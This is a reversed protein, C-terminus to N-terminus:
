YACPKYAAQPQAICTECRPPAFDLFASKRMLWVCPDSAHSHQYFVRTFSALNVEENKGEASRVRQSGDGRRERTGKKERRQEWRVTSVKIPHSALNLAAGSIHRYYAFVRTAGRLWQWWTHILLRAKTRNKVPRAYNISSSKWFRNIYCELTITM